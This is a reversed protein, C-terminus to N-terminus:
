KGKLEILQKNIFSDYYEFERKLINISNLGMLNKIRFEELRELDNVFHDKMVEEFDYSIMGNNENAIDINDIVEDQMNLTTYIFSNYKESM